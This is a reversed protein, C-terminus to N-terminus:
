ESNWQDSLRYFQMEAIHAFWRRFSDRDAYSRLEAADPIGDNDSDVAAESAAALNTHVTRASQNSNNVRNPGTKEADTHGWAFYAILFVFTFWLLLGFTIRRRNLFGIM